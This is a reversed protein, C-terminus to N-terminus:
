GDRCSVRGGGISRARPRRVRLCSLVRQHFIGQLSWRAPKVFGAPHRCLRLETPRPLKPPEHDGHQQGIRQPIEDYRKQTNWQWSRVPSPRGHRIARTEGADKEHQAAPNRPLHQRLFQAAPGAHGIPSAQAIPLLFTDPIPQVEREQIPERTVAIDSQDHAMM